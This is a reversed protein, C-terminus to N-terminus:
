HLQDYITKHTRYLQKQWQLNWDFKAVIVLQDKNVALVLATQSTVSNNQNKAM